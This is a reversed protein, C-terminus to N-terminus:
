SKLGEFVVIKKKMMPEFFIFLPTLKSLLLYIMGKWRHLGGDHNGEITWFSFLMFTEVVDATNVWKYWKMNGM